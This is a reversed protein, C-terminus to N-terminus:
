TVDLIRRSSWSEEAAYLLELIRKDEELTYMYSHKGQIAGVFHEMEKIYMDDEMVYGEVARGKDQPYEEWKKDASTHVRVVRKEWDWVIIGQESIMNLYRYAVRAIVDIQMSALIGSDFQLLVQYIDDIDAELKSLKGKMSSITKVPGLLWTIWSLEFPVIERCGGTERRAVYYKRYDESVHWDPLYQGCHYNFALIKGIVGEDVLRKMVQISPHFRMTASPAAVFPKGKCLAILKDMDKDLVVSAEMFFHLGRRAAELAYQMHLNPPTSIILADPKQALGENFSAYAKIGYEKEVELRRQDQIEFGIIEGANLARLNRIRRKGMSGLGVILFKL